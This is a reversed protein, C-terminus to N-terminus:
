AVALVLTGVNLTFEEGNACSVSAGFDWYGILNDSAATDNYLIAYRFPGFGAGTSTWTIDAGALQGTGNSVSWTNTIDSGGASYGNQATIEAIDTKVTDNAADPTTNSLYVKLTDSHLQHTELGLQYVFDYFKIFNSQVTNAM